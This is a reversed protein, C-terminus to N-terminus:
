APTEPPLPVLASEGGLYRFDPALMPNVEWIGSIMPCAYSEGGLYKFDPALMPNVEWIGSILPM